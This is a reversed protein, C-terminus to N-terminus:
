DSINNINSLDYPSNELTFVNNEIDVDFDLAKLIEQYESSDRHSSRTFCVFFNRSDTDSVLCKYKAYAYKEDESIDKPNTRDGNILICVAHFSYDKCKEILENM